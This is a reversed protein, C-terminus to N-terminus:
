IAKDLVADIFPQKATTSFSSWQANAGNVGGDGGNALFSQQFEIRALDDLKKPNNLLENTSLTQSSVTNTSSFAVTSTSTNNGGLGNNLPLVINQQGGIQFNSSTSINFNTNQTNPKLNQGEFITNRKFRDEYIFEDNGNRLQPDVVSLPSPQQDYYETGFGTPSGEGDASVRGRSYHVAEYQLTMSNALPTGNDQSEVSDHQWQSVLPNVLRYTTYFNRSLQTLEIYRFFPVTINNDLGYRFQNRPAGKYTNDGDGAKNYAGPQNLHWGDAYYFRYYAELLATTVGHNDDHFTVTVPDYTINTQVHKKRNYKNKTEIQATYRPLDASKVLLGIETSYKTLLNPVIDSVSPDISFYVHYLFKQKPAFQFNNETFLRAAHRFDAMTGKPGGINNLNDAFSNAM